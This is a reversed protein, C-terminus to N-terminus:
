NAGKVIAADRQWATFEYTTTATAGSYEQGANAPLTYFTKLFVSQGPKLGVASKVDYQTKATYTGAALEVKRTGSCVDGTWQVTCSEVSTTAPTGGNGIIKVVQGADNRVNYELYPKPSDVLTGTTQYVAVMRGYEITGSNVLELPAGGTRVGPELNALNDNIQGDVVGNGSIRVTGAGANQVNTQTDSLSATLGNGLTSIAVGALVATGGILALNRMTKTRSSTGEVTGVAPEHKEM